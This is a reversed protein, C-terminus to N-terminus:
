YYEENLFIILIKKKNNNDKLKIFNAFSYLSYSYSLPQCIQITKCDEILIM